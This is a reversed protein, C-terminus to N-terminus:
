ERARRRDFWLYALAILSSIVLIVSSAAAARGFHGTTFAEQYSFVALVNTLNAPGGGTMLYILEFHGVTGILLLGTAISLTPVLLPLTVYRLAKFRSAGDVAAAEYLDRPIAQLGALIIVVALPLGNWLRATSVSLLPISLPGWTQRETLFRIDADILGLAHLGQNVPSTAPTLIWVWIASAVVLPVFWPLLVMARIAAQGRREKNMLHALYVGLVIMAATVIVGMTMTNILSRTFAPSSFIERFNTWGNFPTGAFRMRFLDYDFLSLRLTDLMPYIGLVAVLFLTPALMAFQFAKTRRGKAGAVRTNVM